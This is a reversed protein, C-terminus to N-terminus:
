TRTMGHLWRVEDLEVDLLRQDKQRVLVRWGQLHISMKFMADVTNGIV